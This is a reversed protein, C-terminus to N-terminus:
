NGPNLLCKKPTEGSKVYNVRNNKKPICEWFIGTEFDAKLMVM